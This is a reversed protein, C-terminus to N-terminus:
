VTVGARSSHPGTRNAGQLISDGSVFEPKRIIHQSQQNEKTRKQAPQYAPQQARKTKQLIQQM